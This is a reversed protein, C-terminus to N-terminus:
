PQERHWFPSLLFIRQDQVFRWNELIHTALAPVPNAPPVWDKEPLMVQVRPWSPLGALEGARAIADELSGIHDILNQELAQQGTWVKGEAKENLEDKPISRADAVVELFADYIRQIQLLLKERERKSFPKEPGYITIGEGRTITERGISLRDLLDKLVIKGLV